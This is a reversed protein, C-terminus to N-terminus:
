VSKVPSVKSPQRFAVQFRNWGNITVVAATLKVLEEEDFHTRVREYVEDSVHTDAVLTVAETWELAAQERATYCHAERWVSASYLREESEDAERLQRWHMDICFWCGNIQSARLSVLELLKKEIGCERVFKQLASMAQYTAPSVKVYEARQTM